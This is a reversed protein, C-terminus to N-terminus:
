DEDHLRRLQERDKRSLSEVVQEYSHHVLEKIKSDPLRRNFYVSIWHKKNMHWGPQVDEYLDQLELATEQDCKITCFDFYDVNVLCFWKDLVYFALLGRDYESKTNLFALKDHVGPFSLCYNRFEEINM